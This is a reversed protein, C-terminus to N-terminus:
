STEEDPDSDEAPPVTNRESCGAAMYVALFSRAAKWVQRQPGREDGFWTSTFEVPVHADLRRCRM